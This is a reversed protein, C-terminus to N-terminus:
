PTSTEEIHVDVWGYFVEGPGYQDANGDGDGDYGDTVIRELTLSTEVRHLGPTLSPLEWIWISKYGDDDASYVVQGWYRELGTYDTGDITVITQSAEVFDNTYDESTAIWGWRLTPAQDAPVYKMCNCFPYLYYPELPSPTTVSPPGGETSIWTGSCRAEDWDVEWTGNANIGSSDFEGNFSFRPSTSVGPRIGTFSLEM